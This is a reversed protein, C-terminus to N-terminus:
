TKPPQPQAHAIPVPRGTVADTLPRTGLPQHLVTKVQAYGGDECGVDPGSADRRSLLLTVHDATERAVLDPEYDCGGWGVDLTITRDDALVTPNWASVDSGANIRGLVSADRRTYPLQHHSFQDWWTYYAGAGLGILGVVALWRKRTTLEM